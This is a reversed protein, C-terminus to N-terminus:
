SKLKAEEAWGSQFLIAQDFLMKGQAFSAEEQAYGGGSRDFDRREDQPDKRVPELGSYFWRRSIM